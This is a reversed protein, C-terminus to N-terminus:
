FRLFLSINLCLTSDVKSRKALPRLTWSTALSRFQEILVAYRLFSLNLSISFLPQSDDRYSKGKFRPNPGFRVTICPVLFGLRSMLSFLGYKSSCAYLGTSQYGQPSSAKAFAFASCFGIKRLM